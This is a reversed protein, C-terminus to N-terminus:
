AQDVVRSFLRLGLEPYSGSVWLKFDLMSSTVEYRPLLYKDTETTVLDTPQTMVAAQIDATKLDEIVSASNRGYPYSFLGAEKGTQQKYEDMSSVIEAKLSEDGVATLDVHNHTHVGFEILPNNALEARVEEWNMTLRPPYRDPKLQHEIDDLLQERQQHPLTLMRGCIAGYSEERSADDCLQHRHGEDDEFGDNQRYRYACYLRDLWQNRGDSVNGTCLYITAPLGYKKLIPAATQLNNLYGDDFTIVVTRPPIKQQQDLLLVLEALRIVNCSRSLYAMQKDFVACDIGYSPDIYDVDASNTVSHYMLIVAGQKKALRSYLRHVGILAILRQLMLLLKRKYSM